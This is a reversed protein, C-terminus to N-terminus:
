VTYEKSSDADEYDQKGHPVGTATEAKDSTRVVTIKNISVVDHIGRAVVTLSHDKMEIVLYLSDKKLALKRSLEKAATNVEQKLKPPPKNVNM